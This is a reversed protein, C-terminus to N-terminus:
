DARAGQDADSGLEPQSAAECPGRREEASQRPSEVVRGREASKANSKANNKANSKANDALMIQRGEPKVRDERRRGETKTTNEITRSLPSYAM